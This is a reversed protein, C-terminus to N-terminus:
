RDLHELSRGPRRRQQWGGQVALSAPREEGRRTRRAPPREAVHAVIAQELREAKRTAIAREGAEEAARRAQRRPAGPQPRKELLGITARGDFIRLVEEALEPRERTLGAVDQRALAALVHGTAIGLIRSSLREPQQGGHGEVFRTGDAQRQEAQAPVLRHLERSARLERRDDLTGRGLGAAGALEPTEPGHELRLGGVDELVIDGALEPELRQAQLEPE